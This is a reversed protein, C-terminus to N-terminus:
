GDMLVSGFLVWKFLGGDVLLSLLLGEVMLSRWLRQGIAVCMFWCGLGVFGRFGDFLMMCYIRWRRVFVSRLAGDLLWGAVARILLAMWSLVGVVVWLVLRFLEDDVVLALLVCSLWWRWRVDVSRCESKCLGVSVMLSIMVLALRFLVVDVMFAVELQWGVAGARIVLKFLVGDVSLSVSLLWGDAIHM